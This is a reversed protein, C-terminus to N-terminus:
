AKLNLWCEEDKCKTFLAFFLPKGCWFLPLLAAVYHTHM